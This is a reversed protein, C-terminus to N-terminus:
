AMRIGIEDILWLETKIWIYMSPIQTQVQFLTSWEERSAFVQEDENLWYEGESLNYKYSMRM